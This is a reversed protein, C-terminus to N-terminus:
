PGDPAFRGVCGLPYMPSPCYSVDLACVLIDLHIVLFSQVRLICWGFLSQAFTLWGGQINCLRQSSCLQGQRSSSVSLQM